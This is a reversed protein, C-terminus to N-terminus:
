YLFLDWIDRERASAVLGGWRWGSEPWPLMATPVRFPTRGTHDVGGLELGLGIVSEDQFVGNTEGRVDHAARHVAALVDNVSVSLSHPRGSHHVESTVCSPFVVILRDRMFPAQITLSELGPTTAPERRWDRALMPPAPYSAYMPDSRVDYELRWLAGQATLVQNLIPIHSTQPPLQKPRAARYPSNAHVNPPPAEHCRPQLDPIPSLISPGFVQMQRSLDSPTQQVRSTLIAGDRRYRRGTGEPSPAHSTAAYINM